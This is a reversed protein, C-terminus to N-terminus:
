PRDPQLPLRETEQALWSLYDAGGSEVPLALIQPTTYPHHARLTAELPELLCRRTKLVLRVEADDCLKGEWRYLSRIPELQACAVLREELLLRALTEASAADPCTTLVILADSAPIM